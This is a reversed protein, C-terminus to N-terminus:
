HDRDVKWPRGELIAATRRARAAEEVRGALKAGNAAARWIKAAETPSVGGFREPTLRTSEWIYGFQERADAPEVM